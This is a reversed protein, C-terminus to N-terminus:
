LFGEPAGAVKVFQIVPEFDLVRRRRRHLAPPVMPLTRRARRHAIPGVLLGVIREIRVVV